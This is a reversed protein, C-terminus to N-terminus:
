DQDDDEDLLADSLPIGGYLAQIFQREPMEGDFNLEIEVDGDADVLVQGASEVIPLTDSALLEVALGRKANNICVMVQGTVPDISVLELGVADGNVTPDTGTALEVGDSM